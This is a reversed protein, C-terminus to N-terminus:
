AFGGVVGSSGVYKQLVVAMVVASGAWAVGDTEVGSGLM